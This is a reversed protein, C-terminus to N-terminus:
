DGTETCQRREELRFSLFCANTKGREVWRPFCLSLFFVVRIRASTHYIHFPVSILSVKTGGARPLCHTLFALPCTPRAFACMIWVCLHVLRESPIEANLM